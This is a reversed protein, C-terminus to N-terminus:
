LGPPSGPNQDKRDKDSAAFNGSTVLLLSGLGVGCKKKNAAELAQDFHAVFDTRLFMRKADKTTRCAIGRESHLRAVSASHCQSSFCRHTPRSWPFRCDLGPKITVYRPVYCSMSFLFNTELLHFLPFPFIFISIFACPDWEGAAM